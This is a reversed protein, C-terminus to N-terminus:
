GKMYGEVSKKMKAIASTHLQCVRSESVKLVEAIERLKLNEYYYMAVVLREKPPLMEIADALVDKLESSFLSEEPADCVAGRQAAHAEVGSVGEEILEEFSVVSANHSQAMNTHLKEVSVDLYHALEADTPQRNLQVWLTTIANELDRANKRVRRPVWDQKRIFDIIAGKVRISAFTEFKVERDMDFREVADMLAVIGENILDDQDAVSRFMGGMKIVIYKVIYTYHVVIENRLAPDRIQKYQQWTEYEIQNQPKTILEDM